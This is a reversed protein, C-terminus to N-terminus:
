NFTDIRKGNKMTIKRKLKILDVFKGCEIKLFVELQISGFRKSCNECQRMRVIGGSFDRLYSYNTLPKSEKMKTNKPSDSSITGLSQSTWHVRSSNSVRMHSVRSEVHRMFLYAQVHICFPGGQNQLLAYDVWTKRFSAGVQILIVITPSYSQPPPSTPDFVIAHLLFSGTTTFYHFWMDCLADNMFLHVLRSSEQFTIEIM